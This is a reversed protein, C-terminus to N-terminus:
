LYNQPSKPDSLLELVGFRSKLTMKGSRTVYRINNYQGSAYVPDGSMACSSSLCMDPLDRFNTSYQNLTPGSDEVDACWQDLVPKINHM